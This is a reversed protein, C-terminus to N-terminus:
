CCREFKKMNEIVAKGTAVPDPGSKLEGSLFGDYGGDKLVRLHAPFDIKGEGPIERKRDAIHFHLLKGDDLLAKLVDLPREETLDANFTDFLVGMNKSGVRDIFSLTEATSNFMDTENSNVTEIAVKVGYESLMTDLGAILDAIIEEAVSKSGIDRAWGRFGGITVIPNELKAALEVMDAFLSACQRRRERDPDLIKLGTVTYIAGSCIDSIELGNKKCTERVYRYDCDKPYGCLLEIGSYGFAAMDALKKEFSGGMMSFVFDKKIEPSTICLSYKM